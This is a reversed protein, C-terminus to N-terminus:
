QMTSQTNGDRGQRANKDVITYDSKTQDPVFILGEHFNMERKWPQQMISFLMKNHITGQEQIM